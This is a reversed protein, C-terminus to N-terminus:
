CLFLVPQTLLLYRDKLVKIKKPFSDTASESEEGRGESATDFRQSHTLYIGQGWDSGSDLIFFIMQQKFFFILGWTGLFGINRLCISCVNCINIFSVVPAYKELRTLM